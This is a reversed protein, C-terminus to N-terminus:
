RPPLPPSLPVISPRCQIPRPTHKDLCRSTTQSLHSHTRLTGMSSTRGDAYRESLVFVSVQSDDSTYSLLSDSRSAALTPRPMYLIDDVPSLPSCPSTPTTSGYGHFFDPTPQPSFRPQSPMSSAPVTITQIQLPDNQSVQTSEVSSLSSSRGASRKSRPSTARRKPSRRGGTQGTPKQRRPRFRYGPHDIRHRTREEEAQKKYYRKVEPKENRWAEGARKSLSSKEIESGRESGGNALYKHTFDCRYIIFANRPRPVHEPNKLRRQYVTASEFRPSSPKPFPPSSPGAYTSPSFRSQALPIRISSHAPVYRSDDDEAGPWGRVQPPVKFMDIDSDPFEESPSWGVVEM